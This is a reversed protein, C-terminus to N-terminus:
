APRVKGTRLSRAINLRSSQRREHEIVSQLLHQMNAILDNQDSTRKNAAELCQDLAAIDRTEREIQRDLPDMQNHLVNEQHNLVQHFKELEQNEKKVKEITMGREVITADKQKIEENLRAIEKTLESLQAVLIDQQAALKIRESQQQEYQKHLSTCEKMKNGHEDQLNLRRREDEQRVEGLRRECQHVAAEKEAMIQRKM